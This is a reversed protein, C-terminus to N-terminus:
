VIEREMVGYKELVSPPVIVELECTRQMCHNENFRWCSLHHPTRCDPNPCVLVVDGEKILYLRGSATGENPCVSGILPSQSTVKVIAKHMRLAKGGGVLRRVTAPVIAMVLLGSLLLVYIFLLQPWKVTKPASQIFIPAQKTVNKVVAAGSRSFAYTSEVPLQFRQNDGVTFGVWVKHERNDRQTSEDLQITLSYSYSFSQRLTALTQELRSKLVDQQLSDAGSAETLELYAGDGGNAGKSINSLSARDVYSRGKGHEDGIAVTFVRIDNSRSYETISQERQQKFLDLEATSFSRTEPTDERGDSILLLNKIQNKKAERMGFDVADYLRTFRSKDKRITYGDIERKLLEKDSTVPIVVRSEEDFVVVCVRDKPGLSDILLKLGEKAARMKDVGFGAMSGSGDLLILVASGESATQKLDGEQHRVPIGDHKSEVDNLTLNRFTTRDEREISFDLRLKPWEDVALGIPKLSYGARNIDGAVGTVSPNAVPPSDTQAFVGRTLVISCLCLFALLARRRTNSSLRSLFFRCM